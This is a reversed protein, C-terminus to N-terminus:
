ELNKALIQEAGAWTKTEKTPKFATPVVNEQLDKTDALAQKQKKRLAKLSGVAEKELEDFIM